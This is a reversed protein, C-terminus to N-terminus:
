GFLFSGACLRDAECDFPDSVPPGVSRLFSRWLFTSFNGWLFSTLLVADLSFTDDKLAEYIQGSTTGMSFRRLNVVNEQRLIPMTAYWVLGPPTPNCSQIVPRSGRETWRVSLIVSRYQSYLTM